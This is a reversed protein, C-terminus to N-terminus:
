VNAASVSSAPPSPTGRHRDEDEREHPEADQRRVPEPLVSPDRVDHQEHERDEQRGDVRDRERELDIGSSMRKSIDIQSETKMSRRQFRPQSSSKASASSEHSTMEASQTTGTSPGGIRSPATAISSPASRRRRFARLGRRAVLVVGLRHDEGAEDVGVRVELVVDVGPEAVPERERVPDPQVDLALQPDVELVHLRDRSQPREVAQPGSDRRDAVAAEAAGGRRGARIEPELSRDVELDEAGVSEGIRSRNSGIRSRIAPASESSTRSPIEGWAGYVHVSRDRGPTRGLEPKGDRRMEGLTVGLRLEEAGTRPPQSDNASM